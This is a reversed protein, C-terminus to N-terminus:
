SGVARALGRREAGDRAHHLHGSADAETSLGNRPQRGLRHGALANRVNGFAPPHQCLQRHELVELHAGAEPAIALLDLAVQVSHKTVEGPHGVPRALSGGQEATALLLHQGDGAAQHHARAEQEEVLRRQPKSGGNHARDEFDDGPDVSLLTHRNKEDLLVSPNCQARRDARVHELDPLDRDGPRAVVQGAVLRYPPRVKAVLRRSATERWPTSWCITKPSAVPASYALRASARTRM